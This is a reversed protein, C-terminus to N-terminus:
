GVYGVVRGSIATNDWCLVSAAIQHTPSFSNDDCFLVFVVQDYNTLFSKSVSYFPIWYAGSYSTEFYVTGTGPDRVALWVYPQTVTTASTIVASFSRSTPSAFKEYEVIGSNRFVLMEMKGSSSDRWGIGIGNYNVNAIDPICFMAVRYPTAVATQALARVYFASDNPPATDIITLAV